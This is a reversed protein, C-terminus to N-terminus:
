ILQKLRLETKLYAYCIPSMIIGGIGFLHEFIIMVLLLEWATSNIQKGIIKANLFYELKHIIVLFLLSAVAVYPSIGLSLVIIITNSILNGLIPIVGVIFAILIIASQFPLHVDFLPLILCIYIGTIFADIASIKVQALFVNEFSEKFLAVRKVLNESLPQTYQQKNLFLMIGIIFGIIVYIFFTASNKGIKAIDSAYQKILGVGQNKIAMLDNPISNIVFEPLYKNNKLDELIVTVKNILQNIIEFSFANKFIFGLVVSIISTIILAIIVSLYKKEKYPLTNHIKEVFLFSLIITLVLPVLNLHFISYIAAIMILYSCQEVKNQNHIM